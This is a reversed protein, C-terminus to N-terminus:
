KSKTRHDPHYIPVSIYRFLQAITIRKVIGDLPRRKRQENQPTAVSGCVVWSWLRLKHRRQTFNKGALIPMTGARAPYRNM